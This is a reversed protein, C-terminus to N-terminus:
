VSVEPQFKVSVVRGEADGSRSLIRLRYEGPPTYLDEVIRVKAFDGVSYGALFPREETRHTFQWTEVTSDARMALEDAFGQLTSLLTITARSSDVRELLPFGQASLDGNSGIAILAEDSSRGGSAYVRGAVRSGDAKVSFGSVPSGPVGVTFVPEVASFLLPQSPTGILMVWEIGLRDVTLRPQFRIDPGGEVQTLERLRQGLPTLDAGSYDRVMSGAVAAPVIVPVDGDVRGLHQAVLGRAAGQLSSTFSTNATPDTPLVGVPLDPIVMVRDFYSWMGAGTLTLDSPSSWSHSVIPGAQLVIDGDIAALFAKGPKASERLGLRAVDPDRLTVTCSISGSDNLVDSWSGSKVPLTQIRRGTLLDGIIWTTM